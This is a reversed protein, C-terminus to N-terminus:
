PKTARAPRKRPGPAPGSAPKRVSVSEQLQIYHAVLHVPDHGHEQSIEHRARRVRTLTDTSDTPM